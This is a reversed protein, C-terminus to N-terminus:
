IVDIFAHTTVRVLVHQHSHIQEWAEPREAVPMVSPDAFTWGAHQSFLGLDKVPESDPQHSM